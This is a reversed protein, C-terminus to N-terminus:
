DFGLLMSYFFQGKMEEDEVERKVKERKKKKRGNRSKERRLSEPAMWDMSRVNEMDVIEIGEDPDSYVEEEGEGDEKVKGKGSEGGKKKEEGGFDRRGGLLVGANGTLGKGLEGVGGERGVMGLSFNSRPTTGIRRSSSSYSSSSTALAPGM